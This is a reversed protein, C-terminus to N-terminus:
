GPPKNSKKQGIKIVCSHSCDFQYSLGPSVACIEQRKKETVTWTSLDSLQYPVFDFRETDQQSVPPHVQVGRTDIDSVTPFVVDTPTQNVLLLMCRRYLFCQIVLGRQFVKASCLGVGTSCGCQVKEEDPACGHPKQGAIRSSLVTQWRRKISESTRVVFPSRACMHYTHLMVTIWMPGYCSYTLNCNEKHFVWSRNVKNVFDTSNTLTAIHTLNDWVESYFEQVLVTVSPM